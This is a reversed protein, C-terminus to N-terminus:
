EFKEGPYVGCAGGNGWDCLCMGYSFQYQMDFRPLNCRQATQRPFRNLQVVFFVKRGDGISGISGPTVGQSLHLSSMFLQQRLNRGQRARMQRLLHRSLTVIEFEHKMTYGLMSQVM